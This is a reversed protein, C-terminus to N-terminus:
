FNPAPRPQASGSKAVCGHKMSPAEPDCEDRFKIVRINGGESSAKFINAFEQELTIAPSSGAMWYDYFSGSTEQIAADLAAM